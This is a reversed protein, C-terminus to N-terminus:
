KNCYVVGFIIMYLDNDIAFQNVFDNIAKFWMPDQPPYDNECYLKLGLDHQYQLIHYNGKEEENVVPFEMQISYIGRTFETEIQNSLVINKNSDFFRIHRKDFPSLECPSYPPLYNITDNNIIILLGNEDKEWKLLGKEQSSILNYITVSDCNEFPCEKVYGVTKSYELLGQLTPPYDYYYDKFGDLLLGLCPFRSSNFRHIITDKGELVVLEENLFDDEYLHWQIKGKDKKLNNLTLEYSSIFSEDIFPRRSEMVTILSDLSKPYEYYHQFYGDIMNDIGPYSNNTVRHEQQCSYFSVLIVFLFFLRKTKM